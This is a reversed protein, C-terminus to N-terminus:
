QDDVLGLFHEAPSTSVIWKQEQQKAGLFLNQCDATLVWFM